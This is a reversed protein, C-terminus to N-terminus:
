FFHSIWLALPFNNKFISVFAITKTKSLAFTQSLHHDRLQDIEDQWTNEADITNTEHSSIDKDAHKTKRKSNFRSGSSRITGCCVLHQCVYFMEKHEQCLDQQKGRNIIVKQGTTASRLRRGLGDFCRWDREINKWNLDFKLCEYIPGLDQLLGFEETLGQWRPWFVALDEM